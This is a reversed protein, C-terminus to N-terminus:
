MFCLVSTSMKQLEEITFLCFDQVSEMVMVIRYCPPPLASFCPLMQGTHQLMMKPRIKWISIVDNERMTDVLVVEV